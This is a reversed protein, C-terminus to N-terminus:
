MRVRMLIVRSVQMCMLMPMRVARYMRMAVSVFVRMLRMARKGRDESYNIMRWDCVGYFSACAACKLQQALGFRFDM